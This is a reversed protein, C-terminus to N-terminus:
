SPFAEVLNRNWSYLEETALAIKTVSFECDKPYIYYTDSLTNLDICDGYKGLYNYEIHCSYLSQVSKEMMYPQGNYVGKLLFGNRDHTFTGEGLPIFGKSNPLSQVTVPSSFYYRGEDVERRVQAREWEYWDPIHSFETEGEVATLEGYESM